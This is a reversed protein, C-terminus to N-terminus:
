EGAQPTRTWIASRCFVGSIICGSTRLSTGEISMKGLYVSGRYNAKGTWSDQGDPRMDYVSSGRAQSEFDSGPELWVINGCLADGCPEFKVRMGRKDSTWTGLVEEARGPGTILLLATLVLCLRVAIM